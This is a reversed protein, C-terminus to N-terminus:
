TPLGFAYLATDYSGIYVMGNAVAPSSQIGGGIKHSWLSQCPDKCTNSAAFAYLTGDQSGVYVVANAVTPSSNIGGGTKATWLPQCPTRCTEPFAYLHGGDSGVYVIGNAIAPSSGVAGDTKATWLPQCPTRCTEPFAYLHGDDSGVYVIGNAIAPSPSLNTGIPLSSWLPTCPASCKANVAYLKGNNATVYLADDAIAPSNIHVSEGAQSNNEVTFLAKPQCNPCTTDFAYLIGNWAGVYVIGKAVAPSAWIQKGVSPSSWLPTCPASCTSTSRFAYFKGNDSGIYVVGDAVAPSSDVHHDGTTNIQSSWLPQCPASCKAADFAYLFGDGSGVYVVGNAVVPSSYIYDGTSFSWLLKLHSVNATNLIQEHPNFRTHAADFGFQIGQTAVANDYNSSHSLPSFLRPIGLIASILLLITLPIAVIERKGFPRRRKPLITPLPQAPVRGTEEWFPNKAVVISGQQNEVQKRPTQSLTENRVQNATYDFWGDVTIWGSNNIDAAGTILGQVLYRTFLSTSTQEDGEWALQTSSTAALISRGSGSLQTQASKTLKAEGKAGTFFAGAYCTDLIVIQQDSHSGDMVDRIFSASVATSSLLTPQTEKCVFYWKERRDIEGHGTLYLLLLDTRKKEQFFQEIVLRIDHGPLDVRMLVEDFAGIQPSRLAEALARVDAASKKLPPFKEVQDYIGNGILLAFRRV